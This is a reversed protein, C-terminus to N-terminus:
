SSMTWSGNPLRAITRHRDHHLIRVVAAFSTQYAGATVPFDAASTYAPSMLTEETTWPLRSVMITSAGPLVTTPATLTGGFSTSYIVQGSPALKLVLVKPSHLSADGGHFRRFYDPLQMIRGWWRLIGRLISPSAKGNADFTGHCQHLVAAQCRISRIRDPIRCGSVSSKGTTRHHISLRYIDLLRDAM